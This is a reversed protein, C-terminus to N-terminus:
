PIEKLWDPPNTIPPRENQRGGSRGGDTVGPNGPEPPRPPRPPRKGPTDKVPARAGAYTYSPSLRGGRGRSDSNGNNNLLNDEHVNSDCRGGVDVVDVLNRGIKEDINLNWRKVGQYTGAGGMRLSRGDVAFVRDRMRGLSKGLRTRQSRENGSGLPLPPECTIALDYLDSSGVEATGFRDWWSSIFGRWMAGESDSAAMMDDLNELFGEIGAVELIGGMTQAWAEYSGISRQGHPRGASIWARCLTLCAAVLRARNARVWGMLDPHRFAERRWPQDVRADLRIRVLRRAMENSFEPNNGTAIWTCEPLIM